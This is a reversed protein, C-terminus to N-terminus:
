RHYHKSPHNGIPRFIVHINKLLSQPPVAGKETQDIKQLIADIDHPVKVITPHSPLSRKNISDYLIAKKEMKWFQLYMQVGYPYLGQSDERYSELMALDCDFISMDLAGLSEYQIVRTAYESKFTSILAQLANGLAINSVFIKCLKKGTM